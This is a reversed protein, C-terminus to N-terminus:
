DLVAGLNASSVMARYRKLYGSVQKPPQPVTEARRRAIEEEPVLLERHAGHTDSFAFIKHSKIFM